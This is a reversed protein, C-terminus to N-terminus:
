TVTSFATPSSFHSTIITPLAIKFLSSRIAVTSAKFDRAHFHKESLYLKPQLQVIKIQESLPFRETKKPSEIKKLSLNYHANSNKNIFARCYIKCTEETKMAEIGPINKFYQFQTQPMIGILIDIVGGSQVKIVHILLKRQIM